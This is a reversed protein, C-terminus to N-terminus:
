RPGSAPAPRTVQDGDQHAVILQWRVLPLTRKGQEPPWVPLQDRSIGSPMRSSPLGTRRAYLPGLATMLTTMSACSAQHGGVKIGDRKPRLHNAHHITWSSLWRVKKELLGLMELDKANIDATSSAEIIEGIEPATEQASM